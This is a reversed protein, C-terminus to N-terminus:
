DLATEGRDNEGKRTGVFQRKARARSRCRTIEDVQRIWNPLQKKLARENALEENHQETVASSATM